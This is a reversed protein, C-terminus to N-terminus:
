SRSRELLPPASPLVCLSSGNRHIRVPIGVVGLPVQIRPLEIIIVPILAINDEGSAYRDIRKVEREKRSTLNNVRTAM